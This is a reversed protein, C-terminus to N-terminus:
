NNYLLYRLFHSWDSHLIRLNTDIWTGLFLWYFVLFDSTASEVQGSGGFDPMIKVRGTGFGVRGSGVRDSGNKGSGVRGSGRNWGVRPCSHPLDTSFSIYLYPPPIGHMYISVKVARRCFFKLELGWKKQAPSRWQLVAIRGFQHSRSAIMQCLMLNTM